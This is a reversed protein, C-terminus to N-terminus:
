HAYFYWKHSPLRQIFDSNIGRSNFNCQWHEKTPQKESELRISGYYLVFISLTQYLRRYLSLFFILASSVSLQSDLLRSIVALIFAFAPAIDSMATALTPSSLGIGVYKLIQTSSSYYFLSTPLFFFGFANSSSVYVYNSMGTITAAKNITYLVVDLFEMIVMTATIGLREM